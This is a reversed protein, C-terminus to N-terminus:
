NFSSARSRVTHLFRKPLPKPGTTQCIVSSSSKLQQTSVTYLINNRFFNNFFVLGYMKHEIVNTDLTTGNIFYRPFINYLCASWLYDFGTQANCAPIRVSSFVCERSTIIISEEVAVITTRVGSLM